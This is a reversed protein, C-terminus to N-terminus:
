NKIINQFVKHTQLSSFRKIIKNLFFTNQLCIKFPKMRVTRNLTGFFTKKMTFYLNIEKRFQALLKEFFFLKFILNEYM